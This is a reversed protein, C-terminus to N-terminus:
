LALVTDALSTMDVIGQDDPQMEEQPPLLGFTHMGDMIPNRLRLM